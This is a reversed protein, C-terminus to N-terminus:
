EAFHWLDLLIYLTGGLALVIPRIRPMQIAKSINTKLGRIKPPITSFITKINFINM